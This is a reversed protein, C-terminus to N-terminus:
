YESSGTNGTFAHTNEVIVALMGRCGNDRATDSFYRCKANASGENEIGPSMSRNNPASMNAWTKSPLRTDTPSAQGTANPETKPHIMMPGTGYLVEFDGCEHGVDINFQM